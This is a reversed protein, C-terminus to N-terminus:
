RARAWGTFRATLDAPPSGHDLEALQTAAEECLEALHVLLADPNERYKALLLLKATSCPWAVGCASCRWTPRSPVHARVHAM